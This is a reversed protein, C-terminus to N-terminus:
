QTIGIYHRPHIWTLSMNKNIMMGDLHVPNGPLLREFSSAWLSEINLCSCASYSHHYNQLWGALSLCETFTKMSFQRNWYYCRLYKQEGEHKWVLVPSYRKFFSFLWVKKSFVSWVLRGWWGFSSQLHCIECCVSSKMVSSWRKNVLARRTDDLWLPACCHSDDNVCM